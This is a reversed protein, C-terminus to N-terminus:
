STYTKQTLSLKQMSESCLFKEEGTRLPLFNGDHETPTKAGTFDAFPDMERVYSILIEYDFGSYDRLDLPCSSGLLQSCGGQASARLGEAMGGLGLNIIHAVTLAWCGLREPFINGIEDNHLLMSYHIIDCLFWTKINSNFLFMTALSLSACIIAQLFSLLCHLIDYHLHFIPHLSLERVFGFLLYSDSVGIKWWLFFFNFIEWEVQWSKIWSKNRCTANGEELM